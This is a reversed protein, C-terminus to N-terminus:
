PGFAAVCQTNRYGMALSSDTLRSPLTPDPCESINSGHAPRCRIQSAIGHQAPEGGRGGSGVHLELGRRLRSSVLASRVGWPTERREFNLPQPSFHAPQPESGGPGGLLCSIRWSELPLQHM